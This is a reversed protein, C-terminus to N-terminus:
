KSDYAAEINAWNQSDVGAQLMLGDFSKLTEGRVVRPAIDLLFSYGQQFYQRGFAESQAFRAIVPLAPQERITALNTNILLHRLDASWITVPHGNDTKDLIANLLPYHQRITDLHMIEVLPEDGSALAVGHAALDVGRRFGEAAALQNASAPQNLPESLAIAWKGITRQQRNEALRDLLRRTVPEKNLRLDLVRQRVEALDLVADPSLQESM